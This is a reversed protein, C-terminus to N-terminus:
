RRYMCLCDCYWEDPGPWSCYEDNVWCYYYCSQSLYECYDQCSGGLTYEMDACSGEGAVYVDCGSAAATPPHLAVLSQDRALLIALVMALFAVNRFTRM